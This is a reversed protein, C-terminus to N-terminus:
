TMNSRISDDSGEGDADAGKNDGVGGEAYQGNNLSDTQTRKEELNQLKQLTDHYANLSEQIKRLRAREYPRDEQEVDLKL